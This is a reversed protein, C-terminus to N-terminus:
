EGVGWERRRQARLVDKVAVGTVVFADSITDETTPGQITPLFIDTGGDGDMPSAIQASFAVWANFATEELRSDEESTVPIGAFYNRGQFKRGATDAFKSVCVACYSPLASGSATGLEDVAMIVARRRTPVVVQATLYRLRYEESTLARLPTWIEADFDAILAVLEARGDALPPEGPPYLYHFVNRITQGHLSGLMQVEIISSDGIVYPM